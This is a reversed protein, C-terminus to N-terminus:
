ASHTVAQQLKESFDAVNGSQIKAFPIKRYAALRQAHAGEADIRRAAEDSTIQAPTGFRRKEVEAPDAVIMFVAVLPLADLCELPLPLPGEVTEILFHGDLIVDTAGTILEQKVCEVLVNQNETVESSSIPATPRGAKRLLRSARLHRFSTFNKIAAEILSSKGSKSLGCVFVIM